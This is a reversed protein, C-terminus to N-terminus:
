IQDILNLIKDEIVSWQYNAAVYEKGLKGMQAKENDSIHTLIAEFKEQSDYWLGGGSRKCHGKTVECNEHVIAPTGNLWAELLVISLSEYLSPVILWDAEAMASSKDEESLYGLYHINNHKPIDMLSKGVLVLDFDNKINHDLSLYMEFLEKCGKSEEIRGAFLLFKKKIKFKKRFYTSDKIEKLDIGIAIKEGTMTIWPFRTKLFEKEEEANFIFRKPKSFFPDFIRLRIPWEDHALPMLISKEAVHPLSFYTTAYLYCYFIFCDYNEKNQIIYKQLHSSNPGQDIMWKDQETLSVSDANKSIYDCSDNFSKPDRPQDVKFRLVSVGRVSEEGVPYENEWTRYDKACTTLVSVDCHKALKSSLKQCHIEAGGTIGEGFRHIVFAVKKRDNM